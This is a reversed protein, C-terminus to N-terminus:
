RLPLHTHTSHHTSCKHTHTHTSCCATHRRPTDMTSFSQVYLLPPTNVPQLWEVAIITERRQQGQPRSQECGPEQKVKLYGSAVGVVCGLDLAFCLHTRHHRTSAVPQTPPPCASQLHHTLPQSTVAAATTTTAAAVLTCRFLCCHRCKSEEREEGDGEDEGGGCVRLVVFCVCLCM